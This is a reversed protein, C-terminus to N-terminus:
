RMRSRCRGSSRQVNENKSWFPVLKARRGFGSLVIPWRADGVSNASINLTGSFLTVVTDSSPTGSSVAKARESIVPQVTAAPMASSVSVAGSTRWSM